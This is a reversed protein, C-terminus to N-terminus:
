RMRAIVGCVVGLSGVALAVVGGGFGHGTGLGGGATAVVLAGLAVSCLGAVLAVAGGNRGTGIGARRRRLGMVGVILGTLGIAVAVLAGFRGLSIAFPRADAAQAVLFDLTRAM